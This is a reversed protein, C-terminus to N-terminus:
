RTRWSLVRMEPPQSRDLVAEVERRVDGVRAIARAVFVESAFTPPPFLSNANTMVENMPQCPDESQGEPCLALGEQRLQLVNRVDDEDALRSEGTGDNSYLLYLVHPPATNVNIGCGVSPDGCGGPAFPYVSVYPILADVLPGDFGEILRLESVSFFPLNSAHYPPEQQQYYGDEPGGQRRDSDADVWDILNQALERPHYLAKKGPDMELNDIVRELAVTLFDESEKRPKFGGTDEPEFLANLNLRGGTDEISLSLSGFKNPVKFGRTQAWLDLETDYPLEGSQERLRDELLVAEAIRIGGEALAKAQAAQERNRSIISDVTARKLFTAVSSTLLLAFFLVVLLVM